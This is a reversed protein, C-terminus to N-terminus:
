ATAKRHQRIAKWADAVIALGTEADGSAGWLRVAYDLPDIGLEAWFTVEGIAHQRAHCRWCLPVVFEDPKRALTNWKEHRASSMRVHAVQCIPGIMCALCPLASIGSYHRRLEPSIM